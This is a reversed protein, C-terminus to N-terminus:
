LSRLNPARCAVVEPLQEALQAAVAALQATVATFGGCGTELCAATHMSGTDDERVAEFLAERTASRHDFMGALHLPLYARDKYKASAYKEKTERGSDSSPKSPLNDATGGLEELRVGM